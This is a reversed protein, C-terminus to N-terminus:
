RRTQMPADAACVAHHEFGFAVCPFQIAALADAYRMLQCGGKSGTDAFSAEQSILKM